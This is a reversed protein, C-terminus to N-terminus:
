PRPCGNDIQNANPGAGSTLQTARLASVTYLPKQSDPDLVDVTILQLGTPAPSPAPSIHVTVDPVQASGGTVLVAEMVARGTCVAWAKHTATRAGVIATDWATIGAVAALGLLASAVLAEIL